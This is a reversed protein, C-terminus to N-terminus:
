CDPGAEDAVDPLPAAPTANVDYGPNDAVYGVQTCTGPETPATAIIMQVSTLCEGTTADWGWEGGLEQAQTAVGPTVIRVYIDGSANPRKYCAAEQAATAATTKAPASKPLYGDSPGAAPTGGGSGLWSAIGAFLAVGAVGYVLVRLGKNPKGRQSARPRGRRPPAPSKLRPDHQQQQPPPRYTWQPAGTAPQSQRYERSERYYSDNGYGAGPRRRDERPPANQGFQPPIAPPQRRVERPQREPQWQTM